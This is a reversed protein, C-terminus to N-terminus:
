QHREEYVHILILEHPGVTESLKLSGEETKQKKMTIRPFCIQRIYKVDPSTLADDYGFKEWEWLLSGERPSVTRRKIVYRDARMSRLTLEVKVPEENEYITRVQEPDDMRGGGLFCEGKLMKYNFLLIYYGGQEKKTVIYNSGKKLLRDGLSNLFQLAYYAPKCITDKTLLGNGGNAVGRVDFYNSVWDSAMWVNVMDAKGWLEVIKKVFYSGRFCSDNLFNRSSITPNWESIYLRCNVGTEEMVSRIRDVEDNEFTDAVTASYVLGNEEEESVYPFLLISVFDPLCNQERAFDLYNRVFVDPTETIAMPGGVEAGPVLERVTHWLFRYADFFNYNDDRYCQSKHRIDYSLEFIWGSVRDLGYRSVIHRIFGDVAQEWAGRSQFEVSEEGFFIYESTNYVATRPRVGFDLFPMINNKVLFDLVIDLQDYSCNETHIGDTIMMPASFMNWLRVYRFGLNETLYLVHYQTNAMLLTNISGVNITQKWVKRYDTSELPDVESRIVTESKEETGSRDSFEEELKEKLEGRVQEVPQHGAREQKRYENPPMGYAEKFLRNFVSLNSFGSDVAIKTISDDSYLLGQVAHKLRVQNVYDAFYIGTQKKFFRSLTSSSTYMKEALDSLSISGTFNRSIYRLIKRLRESDEGARGEQLKEEHDMFEGALCALIRYLLAREMCENRGSQKLYERLLEQFLQRLKLYSRKPDDASCCQFFINEASGYLSALLGDSYNVRCVVSDGSGRVQHELGSNVALVDNKALHYVRDMIQVEASGLVIYIVETDAQFHKEEQPSQIVAFDMPRYQDM